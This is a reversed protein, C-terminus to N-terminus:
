LTYLYYLTPYHLSLLRRVSRSLSSRPHGWPSPPKRDLIYPHDRRSSHTFSFALLTFISINYLYYSFSLLVSPLKFYTILVQGGKSALCKIWKATLVSCTRAIGQAVKQREYALELFGGQYALTRTNRRTFLPRARADVFKKMMMSTLYDEAYVRYYNKNVRLYKVTTCVRQVIWRLYIKM